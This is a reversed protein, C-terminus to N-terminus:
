YNLIDDIREDRLSSVFSNVISRTKNGSYTICSINKKFISVDLGLSELIPILEEQEYNAAIMEAGSRQPTEYYERYFNIRIRSKIPFDDPLDPKYTRLLELDTEYFEFTTFITQNLLNSGYEWNKIKLYILYERLKDLDM